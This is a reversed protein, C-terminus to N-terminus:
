SWEFQRANGRPPTHTLIRGFVTLMTAGTASRYEHEGDIVCRNPLGAAVLKGIFESRSCQLAFMKNQIDETERGKMVTVALPVEDIAGDIGGHLETLAREVDACLMSTFDLWIASWGRYRRTFRGGDGSVFLTSRRARLFTSLDVNLFRSRQNAAVLFRIKAYEDFGVMPRQRDGRHVPMWAVGRHFTRSCREIGVCTLNRYEAKLMHEFIWRESPMSLLRMGGSPHIDLIHRLVRRRCEDKEAGTCHEHISEAFRNGHVRGRIHNALDSGIRLESTTEATAYDPM